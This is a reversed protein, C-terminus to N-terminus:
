GNEAIRPAAQAEQLRSRLYLNELFTALCEAAMSAFVKLGDDLPLPRTSALCLVGRTAKQFHLPLCIVNSFRPTRVDKGFLPSVTGDADSNASFVPSNNKFVWGVLGSGVEFRQTQVGTLLEQNWGELFYKSGWEDRVTFFCYDYHTAESLLNLYQNLFEPWRPRKKHLEHMLQLCKYYRCECMSDSAQACQSYIDATLDSFLHLIKQDKDSFSYTRKSDLCLVGGGSVPCGMFAKIKKEEAPEYYGLRSPQQDFNSILIPQKNKAIWGVVGMSQAVAAGAKVHNGLSFSAMLELDGKTSPHFLVASYADFVSCILGLMRELYTKSDM